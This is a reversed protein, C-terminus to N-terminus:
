KLRQKLLPFVISVFLLYFLEIVLNTRGRGCRGSMLILGTSSLIIILKGSVM